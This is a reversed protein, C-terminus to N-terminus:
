YYDEKIRRKKEKLEEEYEREAQGIVNDKETKRKASKWEEEEFYGRPYKILKKM